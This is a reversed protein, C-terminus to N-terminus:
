RRAYQIGDPSAMGNGAAIGAVATGHGVTDVLPVTERPTRSQLAQNIQNQTYEAGKRFGPPPTGTANQDWLYLIRTTGGSNIFDPHTYDIGSDIIGVIVGSGSLGLGTGSQVSTICASELNDRLMFTLLKPLEIYEIQPFNYLDALRDINLTIIAYDPSLIEIDAGLLTGIEQLNGNYKVIVELLGDQTLEESEFRTLKDLRIFSNNPM